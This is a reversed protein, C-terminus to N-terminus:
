LQIEIKWDEGEDHEPEEELPLELYVYEGEYQPEKESEHSVIEKVLDVLEEPIHQM